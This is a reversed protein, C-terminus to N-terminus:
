PSGSTQDSGANNRLQVVATTHKGRNVNIEVGVTQWAALFFDKLSPLAPKSHDPGAEQGRRGRM